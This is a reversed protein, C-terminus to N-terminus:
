FCQLRESIWLHGYILSVRKCFSVGAFGVIFVLSYLTPLFVKVFPSAASANCLTFYVGYYYDETTTVLFIPVCRISILCVHYLRYSHMFHCYTANFMNTKDFKIVNKSSTFVPKNDKKGNANSRWRRAILVLERWKFCM